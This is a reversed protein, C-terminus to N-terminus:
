NTEFTSVNLKRISNEFDGQNEWCKFWAIQQCLPKTEFSASAFTNACLCETTMESFKM